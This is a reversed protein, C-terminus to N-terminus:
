IKLKQSWRRIREGYIYMPITTLFIGGVILLLWGGVQLYGNLEIWPVVAFSVGFSITNKLATLITMTEGALPRYCDVVYAMATCPVSIVIGWMIGSAVIPIMPHLHKEIGAGWMITAIPLFIVGPILCWLRFEPAFYGGRRKTIFAVIWDSLAGGAVAGFCGCVVYSININGTALPSDYWGFLSLSATWNTQGRARIEELQTHDMGEGGETDEPRIFNTEAAFLIVLVLLFGVLIVNVWLVFHWDPRSNYILGAFTGSIGSGTSFVWVYLGMWLGREHLFFLDGVVTPGLAEAASAGFGQVIRAGLLSGFDKAVASWVSSAFFIIACLVWVPRKGIKLALPVWFLNGLGLFLLNLTLLYSAQTLTIDFDTAIPILVPSISNTIYNSLFVFLSVTFNVLHKRWLPWTLPDNPDDTPRPLLLRALVRGESDEQYLHAADVIGHIHTEPKEHLGGEHLTQSVHESSPISDKTEM